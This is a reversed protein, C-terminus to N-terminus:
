VGPPYLLIGLFVSRDSWEMMRGLSYGLNGCGTPSQALLGSSRSGGRCIYAVQLPCHHRFGSEVTHAESIRTHRPIHPPPAVKELLVNPSGDTGLSLTDPCSQAYQLPIDLSFIVVRSSSPISCISSSVVRLLSLLVGCSTM